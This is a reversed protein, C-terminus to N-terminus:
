EINFAAELALLQNILKEAVLGKLYCAPSQNLSKKISLIEEPFKGDEIFEIGRYMENYQVVKDRFDRINELTLEPVQFNKMGPDSTEEWSSHSHMKRREWTQKHPNWRYEFVLDDEREAKRVLADKEKITVDTTKMEKSM